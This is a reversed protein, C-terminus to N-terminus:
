DGRDGDKRCTEGEKLEALEAVRLGGLGALLLVAILLRM